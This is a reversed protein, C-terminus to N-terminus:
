RPTLYQLRSAPDSYSSDIDRETRPEASNDSRYNPTCNPSSAAQCYPKKSRTDYSNRTFDYNTTSGSRAIWNHHQAPNEKSACEPSCKGSVCPRKGARHKQTDDSDAYCEKQPGLVLPWLQVWM